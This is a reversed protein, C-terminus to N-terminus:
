RVPRELTPMGPAGIPMDSLERGDGGAELVLAVRGALEALVMEAIEVV